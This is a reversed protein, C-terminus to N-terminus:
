WKIDEMLTRKILISNNDKYIKIIIKNLKKNIM